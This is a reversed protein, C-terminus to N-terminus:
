IVGIQESHKSKNQMENHVFNNYFGLLHRSYFVTYFMGSKSDIKNM